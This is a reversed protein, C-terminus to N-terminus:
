NKPSFYNIRTNVQQGGNFIIIGNQFYQLMKLTHKDNWIHRRIGSYQFDESHGNRLETLPYETWERDDPTVVLVGKKAFKKEPFTGTIDVNVKDAVVAMPSPNVKVMEPNPLTNNCSTLIAMAVVALMLFHKKM